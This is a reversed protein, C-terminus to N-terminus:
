PGENAADEGIQAIKEQCIEETLQKLQLVKHSLYELDGKTIHYEKMNYRADIYARKLLEFLRKHEETQKPFLDFRKDCMAVKIGLTELNHDKPRYDTFVLLITTYYREVAQHLDFAAENLLDESISFEYKKLANNASPFWQDFYDQAKDQYQKPTLKKPSALQHKGSDYLVIGEEKIDKFFYNGVRLAQNLHKIGHFILNVPTAVQGTVTLEAKIQDEIRFKQQLDEHTLVVLLDYDSRYEYTIGQEVYTDEVWNGRAYSGFLLVMEVEKFGSLLATLKHLEAQKHDPLHAVTKNM